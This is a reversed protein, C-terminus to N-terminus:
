GTAAPAANSWRLVAGLGGVPVDHDTAASEAAGEAGPEGNGSDALDPEAYPTNLVIATGGTAAVARLLADDARAPAPEPEGLYRTDTRRLALQDPEEGVWVETNTDPGGPRLLLTEVRHERAAELLSAIDEVAAVTGGGNARGAEFRELTGVAQQHEQETLLASIEEDLLRSRAGAARGGRDTQTTLARLAVPLKDHVATRQRDEGVLLIVDPHTSGAAETLEEATRAANQEWTNEVAQQFHGESPDASATRNLPWDEGEAHGLDKTRHPTRLEFDAGQRDIYAVLCSHEAGTRELLPALHPVAGWQAEPKPPASDLPVTLHNTGGAAFVARGSEEPALTCLEEYVVNQTEEPAGQSALQNRIERATLEQQAAADQGPGASAAYASAWPGPHHLVPNLFTLDM